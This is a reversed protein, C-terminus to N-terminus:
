KALYIQEDILDFSRLYQNVTQLEAPQSLQANKWFAPSNTAGNQEGIVLLKITPYNQRLHQLVQWDEEGKDPAWSMIVYEVDKGYKDIAALADLKEVKTVPHKGTENETTWALSDTTYVTQRPNSNRLGKSIYGNGAMIELVPAGNLYHSLANTFSSNTYSWMGYTEELYDRFNRLLQDLKPLATSYQDWLQDGEPDGKLYRQNLEQFITDQIDDPLLMKPLPQPLLGSRLLRDNLLVNNILFKISSFNNFLEGYRELQQIYSAKQAAAHARHYRKKLKKIQQPNM